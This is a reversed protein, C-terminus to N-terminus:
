GAAQQLAALETSGLLDRGNAGPRTTRWIYCAMTWGRKALEEADTRRAELAQRTKALAEPPLAQREVADTIASLLEEDSQNYDLYLLNHPAMHRARFGQGEAIRLDRLLPYAREIAENFPAEFDSWFAFVSPEVPDCTGTRIAEWDAPEPTITVQYDNAQREDLAALVAEQASWPLATEPSSRDRLSRHLSDMIVEDSVDAQLWVIGVRADYCLPSLDSLCEEVWRVEVRVPRNNVGECEATPTLM